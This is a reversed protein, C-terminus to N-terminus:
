FCTPESEPSDDPVVESEPGRGLIQNLQDSTVTEIELLKKALADLQDRHETLIELAKQYSTELMERIESDVIQQIEDSITEEPMYDMALYNGSNGQPITLAGLKDSMGWQCVMKYAFDTASKLDNEVGSSFDEFALEEAARGGLAIMIESILKVKDMSLREREPLFSTQGM